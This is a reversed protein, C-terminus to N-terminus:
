QNANTGEFNEPYIAPDEKPNIYKGPNLIYLVWAFQKQSLPYEFSTEEGAQKAAIWKITQAKCSAILKSKNKTGLLQVYAAVVEPDEDTMVAKLAAVNKEVQPDVKSVVPAAKKLKGIISGTSVASIAVSAFYVTLIIATLLSSTILNAKHFKGFM